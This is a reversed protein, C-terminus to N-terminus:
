DKNEDPSSIVTIAGELGRLEEAKALASDLASDPGKTDLGEALMSNGLLESVRWRWVRKGSIGIVECSAAELVLSDYRSKGYLLKTLKECNRWSSAFASRSKPLTRRPLANGDTIRYNAEYWTRKRLSVKITRKSDYRDVSDESWRVFEYIRGRWEVQLPVEVTHTEGSKWLFSRPPDDESRVGDIYLPVGMPNSTVTVHKPFVKAFIRKPLYVRMIRDFDGPSIPVRSGGLLIGGVPHSVLRYRQYGSGGEEGYHMLSQYNYPEGDYLTRGEFTPQTGLVDRIHDIRQKRQHEHGMGLIHGIEHLVGHIGIGPKLRIRRRQQRFSYGVQADGGVRRYKPMVDFYIHSTDGKRMPRLYIIRLSLRTGGDAIELQEPYQHKVVSADEGPHLIGVRLPSERRAKSNRLNASLTMTRNWIEVAEGISHEATTGLLDPHIKYPLVGKPWQMRLWPDGTPTTHFEDFHPSRPFDGYPLGFPHEIPPLGFQALIPM